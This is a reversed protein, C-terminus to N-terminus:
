NRPLDVIADFEEETVFQDVEDNGCTLCLTESAGKASTWEFTYCQSECNLCILYDPSAM